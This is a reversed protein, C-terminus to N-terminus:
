YNTQAFKSFDARCLHGPVVCQWLNSCAFRKAIGITRESSNQFQQAHRSRSALGVRSASALFIDSECSVAVIGKHNPAARSSSRGSSSFMRLCAAIEIAIILRYRVQERVTGKARYLTGTSAPRFRVIRSPTRDMTVSSRGGCEGRANKNGPHRVAGAPALVRL